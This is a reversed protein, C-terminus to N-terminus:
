RACALVVFDADALLAAVDALPHLAAFGAPPPGVTRNAGVVRCGVAALRQAVARGIRGTGVVLVASGAPERHTPEPQFGMSWDGARFARETPLLRHTWALMAMLVYEGIAPEHGYANCVPVHPPIAALDIGDHGAAALQLLRLGEPTRDGARWRVALM